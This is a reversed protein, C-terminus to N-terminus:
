CRARVFDAFYECLLATARYYHPRRPIKKTNSCSIRAIECANCPCRADGTRDASHYVKKEQSRLIEGEPGATDTRRTHMHPYSKKKKELFSDYQPSSPRNTDPPLFITFRDAASMLFERPFPKNSTVAIELKFTSSRKQIHGKGDGYIHMNIYCHNTELPKVDCFQRNQRAIALPNRMHWNCTTNVKIQCRDALLSVIAIYYNVNFLSNHSYLLILKLLEKNLPNAYKYYNVYFLHM